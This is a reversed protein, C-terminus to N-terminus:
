AHTQDVVLRAAALALGVHFWYFSYMLSIFFLHIAMGFAGLAFGFALWKLEEQEQSGRRRFLLWTRFLPITVAAVLAFVGLLGMESLVTLWGSFAGTLRAEKNSAQVFQPKLTIFMNPGWGVIPRERFMALGAEQAYVRIRDDSSMRTDEGSLTATLTQQTQQWNAQLRDLYYFGILSFVIVLLPLFRAWRQFTLRTTIFVLMVSWVIWASRTEYAIGHLLLSVLTLGAFIRWSRSFFSGPYVLIVLSLAVAPHYAFVAGNIGLSPLGFILRLPRLELRWISLLFALILIIKTILVLREKTHFMSMVVFLIVVSVLLNPIYLLSVSLDQSLLTTIAFVLVLSALLAKQWSALAKPASTSAHFPLVAIGALLLLLPGTISTEVGALELNPLLPFYLLILIIFLGLLPRALIVLGVVAGAMLTFAQPFLTVLIGAIISPLLLFPWAWPSDPTISSFPRTFKM